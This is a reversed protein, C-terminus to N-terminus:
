KPSSDSMEEAGETNAKRLKSPSGPPSGEAGKKRTARPSANVAAFIDGCMKKLDKIDRAADTQSDKLDKVQTIIALTVENTKALEGQVEIKFIGLNKTVGEVETKVSNQLAAMRDELLKIRGDHLDTSVRVTKDIREQVNVPMSQDRNPLPVFVPTFPAAASKATTVPTTMTGNTRRVIVFGMIAQDTSMRTAPPERDARIKYTVKKGVTHNPGVIVTWGWQKFDERVQIFDIEPKWGETVFDMTPAVNVNSEDFRFDNPILKRRAVGVKDPLFRAGFMGESDSPILGQFGELTTSQDYAELKSAAKFWIPTLNEVTMDGRTVKRLYCSTKGSKIMLLDAVDCAFRAVCCPRPHAKTVMKISQVHLPKQGLDKLLLDQWESSKWTQYNMNHDDVQIFMEITTPSSKPVEAPRTAPMPADEGCVVITAEKFEEDDQDTPVPVLIDIFRTSLTIPINKNAFALRTNDAKGGMLLSFGTKTRLTQWADKMDERDLAIVREGGDTYLSWSVVEVQKGPSIPFGVDTM